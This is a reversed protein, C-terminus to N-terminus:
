FSYAMEVGHPHFRLTFRGDEKGLIKLRVINICSLIRTVAAMGLCIGANRKAIESRNRLEKYRLREADSQWDWAYNDTEPYLLSPDETYLFKEFNYQDRSSYFALDQFFKDDKDNPNIGAYTTAYSIYDERAWCARIYFTLASLWLTADAALLPYAYGRQNLYLEGSGPLILSFLLAKGLSKEKRKPKFIEGYCPSKGLLLSM